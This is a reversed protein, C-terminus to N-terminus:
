IQELRRTCGGLRGLSTAFTQDVLILVVWRSVDKVQNGCIRFYLVTRDSSSVVLRDPALWLCALPNALIPLQLRLHIANRSLGAILLAGDDTPAALYHGDPSFALDVINGAVLASLDGLPLPSLHFAM